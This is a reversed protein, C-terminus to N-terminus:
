HTLAFDTRAKIAVNGIAAWCVAESTEQRYVSLGDLYAAVLEADGCKEAIEMTAEYLWANRNREAAKAIEEDQERETAVLDSPEEVTAEQEDLDTDDEEEEEPGSEEIVEAASQKIIKATLPKGDAKETALDVVAQRSDAPVANLARTAREDQFTNGTTVSETITVAAILQRARSSSFEWKEQCYQEFTAYDGRYLKADRIKSLANGVDLFKRIGSAIVAECKHLTKLELLSISDDTVLQTM